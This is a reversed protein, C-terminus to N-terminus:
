RVNWERDGMLGSIKGRGFLLVFLVLVNLVHSWSWGM